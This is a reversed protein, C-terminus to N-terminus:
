AAESPQLEQALIASKLSMLARNRQEYINTASKTHHFVADMKRSFEEQKALSPLCFRYSFLHNQNVKPMGARASGDVAYDTFKRCLLLYFLFSRGLMKPEPSLPYMDASCVGRFDPMHVKRLYPRIKSYLVTNDDFPYKGSTLNEEQATIVDIVDNSMSIINGAGIHPYSSYPKTTPNVLSSKISCVDALQVEEGGLRSIEDLAAEIVLEIQQVITNNHGIARDIEAFAADLKAVIRQQEALPPLYLRIEKITKSSLHKVTTFGTVDEIKKLEDNIAYLLFRKDLETDFDQLRCVRQNLLADEGKWEYCRFEGDMGILLDGRRVIYKSDFEGTYRTETSVGERLDRIRILGIEGDADFLKSNFAYGNQVTLYDGLEVTRWM